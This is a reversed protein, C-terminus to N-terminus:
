LIEFDVLEPEFLISLFLQQLLSAKKGDKTRRIGAAWAAVHNRV